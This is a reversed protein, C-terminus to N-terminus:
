ESPSRGSVSRAARSFRQRGSQPPMEFSCCSCTAATSRRAELRTSAHGREGDGPVAEPLQQGVRHQDQDRPTQREEEAEVLVDRGEVPLEERPLHDPDHDRDVERGEDGAAEVVAPPAVDRRAVHPADRAADRDARHQGVDHQERERGLVGRRQRAADGRDVEQQQEREDGARAQERARQELARLGPEDRVPFLHQDDAGAIGALQEDALDAAVTREGVRRDAEDVVVGLLSLERM